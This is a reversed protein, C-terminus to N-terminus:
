GSYCILALLSVSTETVHGLPPPPPSSEAGKRNDPRHGPQASDGAGLRSPPCPPLPALPSPPLPPPSFRSMPFCLPYFFFSSVPINMLSIAAVFPCLPQTKQQFNSLNGIFMDVCWYIHYVGM